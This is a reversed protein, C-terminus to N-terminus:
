HWGTIQSSSELSESMEPSELSCSSVEVKSFSLHFAMTKYYAVCNSSAVHSTSPTKCFRYQHVMARNLAIKVELCLIMINEFYRYKVEYNAPSCSHAVYHFLSLKFIDSIINLPSCLKFITKRDLRPPHQVPIDFRNVTDHYSRM